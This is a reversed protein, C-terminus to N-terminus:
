YLGKLGNLINLAKVLDENKVLIILEPASSMIEHISIDGANLASSVVSIIGPTRVAGPFFQILVEALGKELSLTDKRSFAKLFEGLNDEDIIVRIGQGAQIIRFVDGKEFDIGAGFANLKKQSTRNKPLLIDVVRDRTQIGIDAFLKKARTDKAKRERKYRRIASMVADLNEERLGLSSIIHRALARLSIINQFLCRRIIFDNELFAQVQETITAM